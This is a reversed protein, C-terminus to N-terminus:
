CPERWAGLDIRKRLANIGLRRAAACFASRPLAYEADYVGKRARLFPRAKACERYQFCQELIAFDFSPALAAAQDLDNKLAVALGAAHATRAIWRNFALQDRARLPFGSHNAYGDVNDPEVADFGKARCTAFRARVIPALLARRRIDLWREGPWGNSAGLVRAPFRQRDARWREWTGVDVYCVVYRGARHLRAITARSADFGDVDYVRAAVTLDLRGDLQWQWTATAPPRRCDACGAHASPTPARTLALTAAAALVVPVVLGRRRSKV